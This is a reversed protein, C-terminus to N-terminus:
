CCIGRCSNTWVTLSNFNLSAVKKEDPNDQRMLADLESRKVIMEKRLEKTEEFFAGAKADDKQPYAQNDCYRPGGCNGYGFYNQPNALSIGSIGIAGILAAAALYKKM